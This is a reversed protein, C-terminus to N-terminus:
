KEQDDSKKDAHNDIVATQQDRSKRSEGPVIVTWTKTEKTKTKKPVLNHKKFVKEIRKNYEEISAKHKM